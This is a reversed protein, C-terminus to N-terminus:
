HATPKFHLLGPIAYHVCVHACVCREGCIIYVTWITAVVVLLLYLPLYVCQICTIIPCAAIKTIM